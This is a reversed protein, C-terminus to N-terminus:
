SDYNDSCYVEIFYMSVAGAERPLPGIDANGFAKACRCM